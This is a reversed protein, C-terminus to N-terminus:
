VDITYLVEATTTPTYPHSSSIFSILSMGSALLIITIVHFTVSLLPIFPTKEM